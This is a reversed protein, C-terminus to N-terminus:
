RTGLRMEVTSDRERYRPGDLINIKWLRPRLLTRLPTFVLPFPCGEGSDM